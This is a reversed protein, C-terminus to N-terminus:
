VSINGGVGLLRRIRASNNGTKALVVSQADSGKQRTVRALRRKKLCFYTTMGISLGVVGVGGFASGVIVGLQPSKASSQGQTSLPTLLTVVVTTNVGVVALAAQLLSANSLANMISGLSGAGSTVTVEVTLQPAITPATAVAHTAGTANAVATLTTLNTLTNSLAVAASSSNGVNSVTVPVSLGLLRRGAASSVPVGVTVDAVSHGAAAAVSERLADRQNLLLNNVGAFSVTTSVPLDNVIVVVDALKAGTAAAFGARLASINFRSPSIAGLAVQIRVVPLPPLRPTQLPRPM